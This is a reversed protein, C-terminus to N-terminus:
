KIAEHISESITPHAFITEKLQSAKLKNTIAAAFVSILETAKPGIISAGLIEDSKDDSTIKIFGDAEDLVHAMGCGRFDFKKINVDLAADGPSKGVSSIEPDTFICNPVITNDAKKLKGPNAINEACIRGQYAAYHALMIKGTCDGAAFINKVGTRLYEDVPIKNKEIEVGLSELGLGSIRPIRGVCALVLAYKSTDVSKIDTSTNVKIGKKKFASELKKAIEPDENPLLQPTLEVITVETGFTSFLSAFECGIVGGGVILLSSPIEKIKLLDDSSIVRKGDFELGKLEYPKSGTAIIINKANLVNGGADVEGPNLIKAEANIFDVGKLLFQMGSRLQSIIKDKREQVKLFNVSPNASEIGFINSKKVASFVKASQLLTKTPICGRNLCTGGIESSDILCVKLGLEKARIAANFGAWGAGIVVLDYM